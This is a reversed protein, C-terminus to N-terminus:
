PMFEMMEQRGLMTVDGINALTEIQNLHMLYHTMWLHYNYHMAVDLAKMAESRVGCKSVAGDVKYESEMFLDYKKRINNVVNPTHIESQYTDWAIPAFNSTGTSTRNFYDLISQLQSQQERSENNVATARL